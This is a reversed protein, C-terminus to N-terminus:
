EYIGLDEQEAIMAEYAARQQSIRLRRYALVDSLALRRHTGVRHSKISGSDLLSVLTPRSIGLVRAAASTTLDRAVEGVVVGDGRDLAASIQRLLDVMLGPIPVTESDDVTLRVEDRGAQSLLAFLANLSDYEPSDKRSAAESLQLATAALTTTTM